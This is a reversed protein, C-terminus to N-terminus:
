APEIHILVHSIQPIDSLIKDKLRHSIEHGERVSLQGNVRAHLDVVFYSGVKRIVCKETNVIGQVGSGIVTIQTVLDHYLNEDMFESVAPRLIKYANILIVFAAVLAAWEDAKEFGPGLTVAITIGIIAAISSISDSRQHWAEARLTSSNLQKAKSLMIRFMIEKWIVIGVLIFLTWVEPKEQPKFLPAQETKKITQSGAGVMNDLQTQAMNMQFDGGYMKSGYFP